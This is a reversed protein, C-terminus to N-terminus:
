NTDSKAYVCVAGDTPGVVSLGNKLANSLAAVAEANLREGKVALPIGPPYVAINRAAVYGEAQKAPIWIVDSFAPKQWTLKPLTVSEYVVKPAKTKIRKLIHYVRRIHGPTDVASLLLLICRTDVAEAYLGRAMMAHKIEDHSLGTKQYDIVWKLPDHVSDTEGQVVFFGELADIKDSYRAVADALRRVRKKSNRMMYQHAFEISAMMPYSPSTTQIQNVAAKLSEASLYPSDGLALYASQNMAPLTKHTSVVWADAGSEAPSDPLLTSYAFCAAHAADVIVPIHHRHAIATIAKLDTCFGYYNPYTLYVAKIHENEKLAAEIQEPMVVASVGSVKPYVFVPSIDFLDIANAASMHFDRVMLVTQGKFQGLMALVGTSSGNVLYMVREAGIDSAMRSQADQIIGEPDCLNDLGSIETFDYKFVGGLFGLPRGKTGPMHMRIKDRRAAKKLVKILTVKMHSMDKRRIEPM